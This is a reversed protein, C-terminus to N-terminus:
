KVSMAGILVCRWLTFSLRLPIHLHTPSVGSRMECRKYRCQAHLSSRRCLLLYWKQTASSARYWRGVSLFVLNPDMCTIEQSWLSFTTKGLRRTM